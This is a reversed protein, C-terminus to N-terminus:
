CGVGGYEQGEKQVSMEAVYQHQKLFFFNVLLIQKGDDWNLPSLANDQYSAVNQERGEHSLHLQPCYHFKIYLWNM